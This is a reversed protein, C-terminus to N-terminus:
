GRRAVTNMEWEVLDGPNAWQSYARQQVQSKRHPLPGHAGQQFYEQNPSAYMPQVTINQAYQVPQPMHVIRQRQAVPEVPVSESAKRKRGAAAKKSKGQGVSPSRTGRRPDEEHGHVRKM